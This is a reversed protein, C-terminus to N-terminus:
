GGTAKKIAARADGLMLGSWGEAEANEVMYRLADLLEPAAAMLPMVANDLTIGKRCSSGGTYNISVTLEDAAVIGDVIRPLDTVEISRDSKHLTFKM